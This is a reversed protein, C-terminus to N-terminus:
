RVCGLGQSRERFSSQPLSNKNISTLPILVGVVSKLTIIDSFPLQTEYVLSVNLKVSLRLKKYFKNIYLVSITICYLTFFLKIKQDTKEFTNCWGKQTKQFVQRGKSSRQRPPRVGSTPVLIYVENLCWFM